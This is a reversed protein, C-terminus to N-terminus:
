DQEYYGSYIKSYGIIKDYGGNEPDNYFLFLHYVNQTGLHNGDIECWDVNYVKDETYTGTVYKYDYIGRKLIVYGEYYGNVYEMKYEPLVQWDSFPGVLFVDRDSIYEHKLQFRVDMYNAYADNFKKLRFGGNHDPSLKTYFYGIEPGDFHADVEYQSYKSINMLNTRRYENGPRIDRAIFSFGAGLSWEHYRTDTDEDVVINIPDYIRKNEVIELAKIRFREVEEEPIGLRTTLRVSRNLSNESYPKGDLQDFTFSSSLNVINEVVYFRGTAYVKQDEFTNFIEFMWKGAFPFTVNKNPFSKICHWDAGDNGLPLSKYDLMNETDYGPNTLFGSEAPAWNRNCFKFRISLDPTVESDVDFEIIIKENKDGKFSIVPISQPDDKRYVQLTKIKVDEAFLIIPFLFLFFIKKM